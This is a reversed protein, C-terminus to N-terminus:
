GVTLEGVIGDVAVWTSGDRSALSGQAVVEYVGAPLDVAREPEAVDCGRLVFSVPVADAGAPVAYTGGVADSTGYGSVVGDRVLVLGRVQLEAPVEQVSAADIALEAGLLGAADATVSTPVLALVPSDASSMAAGCPVEVSTSLAGAEGDAEWEKATEPALAAGGSDDMASMEQPVGVGVGVAVPVVVAAAALGSLAGIAVRKPRRRARALRIIRDADLRSGDGGEGHLLARLESETPM